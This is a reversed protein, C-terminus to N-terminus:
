FVTSEVVKLSNTVLIEAGCRSWLRIVISDYIKANQIDFLFNIKLIKM